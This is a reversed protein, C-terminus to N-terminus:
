LLLVVDVMDSLFVEVRWDKTSEAELVTCDAM